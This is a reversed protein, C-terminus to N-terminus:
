YRIPLLGLIRNGFVSTTQTEECAMENSIDKGEVEDPTLPMETDLPSLLIMIM